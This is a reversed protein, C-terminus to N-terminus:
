TRGYGLLAFSELAEDIGTEAQDVRALAAADASPDSGASASLARYAGEAGLLASGLAAQAGGAAIPPELPSLSSAALALKAALAKALAALSSPNKAAHMRRRLLLRESDLTRVLTGLRSSYNADPTLDFQSQGVLTLKSVIQECEALTAAYAKAAYCGIATPGNGPNPIVYLNLTLTPAYGALRLASYKYAQGGLFDLLETKPVGRLVRRFAAPLPSPEGSPLQGSILGAQAHTGDAALVLERALQLGPVAPAATARQWSSPFELLVDAGSVIRSTAGLSAAPSRSPHRYGILYGAVAVALLLPIAILPM